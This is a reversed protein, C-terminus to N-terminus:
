KKSRPSSRLKEAAAKAALVGELFPKERYEIGSMWIWHVFFTTAMLLPGVLILSATFVFSMPTNSRFVLLLAVVLITVLASSLRGIRRAWIVFAECYGRGGDDERVIDIKALEEDRKDRSLKRQDQLFDYIRDWWIFFTVNLAFTVSLFTAYDHLTCNDDPWCLVTDSM